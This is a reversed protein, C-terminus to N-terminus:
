PDLGATSGRWSLNLRRWSSRQPAMPPEAQMPGRRGPGLEFGLQEVCRDIWPRTSLPESGQRPPPWPPAGALQEALERLASQQLPRLLPNAFRAALVACAGKSREVGGLGGPRNASRAGKAPRDAM